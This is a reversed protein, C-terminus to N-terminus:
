NKRLKSNLIIYINQISRTCDTRQCVLLAQEPDVIVQKASRDGIEEDKEDYEGGYYRVDNNFYKVIEFIIRHYFPQLSVLELLQLLEISVEFALFQGLRGHEARGGIASLCAGFHVLLSQVRPLQLLAAGLVAVSRIPLLVAISVLLLLAFKEILCEVLWRWHGFDVRVQRVPTALADLEHVLVITGVVSHIVVGPVIFGDVVVCSIHGIVNVNLVCVCVCDNLKM